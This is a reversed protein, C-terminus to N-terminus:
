ASLTDVALGDYSYATYDEILLFVVNGRGYLNAHPYMAQVEDLRSSAMTLIDRSPGTKIAGSPCTQACATHDTVGKDYRDYCFDCKVFRGLDYDYRPINFPCAAIFAAIKEEDNGKLRKLSSLTCNETFLIFGESTRIVESSYKACACTKCHMCQKKYYLFRFASGSEYESFGIRTLTKGSVDPPNSYSGTFVTEEAPLQHWQKCSVQCAKCGICKSTDIFQVIADTPATPKGSGKGMIVEKCSCKKGDCM